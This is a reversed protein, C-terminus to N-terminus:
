VEDLNNYHFYMDGQVAGGGNVNKQIVVRDFAPNSDPVASTAYDVVAGKVWAPIGFFACAVQVRDFDTYTGKLPRIADRLSTFDIGWTAMRASRTLNSIPHKLVGLIRAGVVAELQPRGIFFEVEISGTFNKSTELATLTLTAAEDHNLVPPTFDEFDAVTLFLGFMSNLLTVTSEKTFPQLSRINATPAVLSLPVRKYTIDVSGTYGRGPVGTITVVTDRDPDETPNPAAFTVNIETLLKAPLNEANVLELLKANATAM